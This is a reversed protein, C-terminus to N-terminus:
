LRKLGNLVRQLLDTTPAAVPSHTTVLANDLLDAVLVRVAGMPQNLAAALESVSVPDRCRQMILRHDPTWNMQPARPQPTVVVIQTAADLDCRTPNSRGGVVFFPRKLPVDDNGDDM